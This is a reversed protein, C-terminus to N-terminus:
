FKPLKSFLKGLWSLNKIAQIQEKASLGAKKIKLSIGRWNFTFDIDSSIAIYTLSIATGLALIGLDLTEDVYEDMASRVLPEFEEQSAMLELISRAISGSDDLSLEQDEWKEKKQLSLPIGADLTVKDMADAIIEIKPANPMNSYIGASLNEVIFCAQKDDLTQIKALLKNSVM